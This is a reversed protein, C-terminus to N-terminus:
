RKQCSRGSASRVPVGCFSVLCPRLPMKSSSYASRGFSSCNMPAIAPSDRILKSVNARLNSKAGYLVSQSTPPAVPRSQTSTAFTWSWMSHTLKSRGGTSGIACRAMSRAPSDSRTM